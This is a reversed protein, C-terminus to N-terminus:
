EKDSFTGYAQNNCPKARKENKLSLAIGTKLPNNPFIVISDPQSLM